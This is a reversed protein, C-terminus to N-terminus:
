QALFTSYPNVIGIAARTYRPSMIIAYHPASTKWPHVINDWNGVPGKLICEAYGMKSHEYIGTQKMIGSYSKAQAALGDDWILAPIHQEIRLANIQDFAEKAVNDVKSQIHNYGIFVAGCVIILAILYRM